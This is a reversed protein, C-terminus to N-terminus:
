ALRCLHPEKRPMNCPQCDAKKGCLAAHTSEVCLWAVALRLSATFFALRQSQWRMGSCDGVCAAAIALAHRQSQWRLGSRNGVCAAAIAL